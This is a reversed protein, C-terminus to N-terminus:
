MLQTALFEVLMPKGLRGFFTPQNKLATKYQATYILRVM